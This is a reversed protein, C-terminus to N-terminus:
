CLFFAWRLMYGNYIFPVVWFWIFLHGRGVLPSDTYRRGALSVTWKLVLWEMEEVRFLTFLSYSLKFSSVKLKLSRAQIFHDVDISTALFGCLLLEFISNILMTSRKHCKLLVILWSLIAVLCHTSSDVVAKSLITNSMQLVHDGTFCICALLTTLLFYM